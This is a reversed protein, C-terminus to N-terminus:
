TEGRNIRYITSVQVDYKTALESILIKSNSLENQIDLVDQVQLKHKSNLTGSIDPLM